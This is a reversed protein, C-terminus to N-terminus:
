QLKFNLTMPSFDSANEIVQSKFDGILEIVGTSPTYTFDTNELLVRPGLVCIIITKNASINSKYGESALLDTFTCTESTISGGTNTEQSIVLWNVIDTTPNTNFGTTNQYVIDGISVVDNVNYKRDSSYERIGSQTTLQYRM